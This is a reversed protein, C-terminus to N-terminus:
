YPRTPESIHILSLLEGGAVCGLVTTCLGVGTGIMGVGLADLGAGMSAAESYHWLSIPDTPLNGPYIHLGTPNYNAQRYRDESKLRYLGSNSIMGGGLEGPLSFLVAAPSETGINSWLM